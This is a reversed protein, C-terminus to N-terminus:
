HETKFSLNLFNINVRLLSVPPSVGVLLSSCALEFVGCFFFATLINNVTICTCYTHTNKRYNWDLSPRIALALLKFFATCFTISMVSFPVTMMMMLIM